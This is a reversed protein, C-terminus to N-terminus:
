AARVKGTKPSTWQPVRMDLSLRMPALVNKIENLSKRGLNSIALLERESKQILDGIYEIGENKLVNHTRVSWEIGDVRQFLADYPGAYEMSVIPKRGQTQAIHTLMEFPLRVKFEGVEITIHSM